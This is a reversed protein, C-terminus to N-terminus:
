GKKVRKLLQMQWCLFADGAFRGKIRLKDGRNFELERCTWYISTLLGNESKCKLVHKVKDGFNVIKEVDEVTTEIITADAM